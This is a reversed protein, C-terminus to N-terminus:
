SLIQEVPWQLNSWTTTQKMRCIPDGCTIFVRGNAAPLLVDLLEDREGRSLKCNKFLDDRGFVDEYENFLANGMLPVCQGKLCAAVVANATGTGLCAGVLVNTDLVIRM